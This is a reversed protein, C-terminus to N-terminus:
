LKVNTRVDYGEQVRTYTGATGDSKQPAYEVVIKAYNLAVSETPVGSGAGAGGVVDASIFADELNVRFYVATNPDGGAKRMELTVTKYHQSTTFGLRLAASAKDVTKIIKIEGLSARGSGAGGRGAGAQPPAIEMAKIDIWNRHGADTSEGQIMGQPGEIRLFGAPRSSTTAAATATAQAAATAAAPAAAPPGEAAAPGATAIMATVFSAGVAGLLRIRSM